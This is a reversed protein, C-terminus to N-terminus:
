PSKAPEAPSKLLIATTTTPDDSVSLKIEFRLVPFNVAFVEYTLVYEGTATIIPTRPILDLASNLFVKPPEEM